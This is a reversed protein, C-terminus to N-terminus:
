NTLNESHHCCPTGLFNGNKTFFACGTRFNVGCGITDGASFKPGYDKGSSQCCFSRGDDGHYAWSDPEWGPLRTLNVKEGSFGIGILSGEKGKSMVEVEFYFIGCQPPMPHDALVAAAEHDHSKTPATFKVEFGDGIIDLGQAKFQHNWRSPLPALGDDEVIPEKEVIDYTM